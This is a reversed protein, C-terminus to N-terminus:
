KIYAKYNSENTGYVRYVSVDSGYKVIIQDYEGYCEHDLIRWDCIYKEFWELRTM